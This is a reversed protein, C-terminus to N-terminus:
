KSYADLIRLWAAKEMAEDNEGLVKAYAEAALMEGIGPSELLSSIAEALKLPSRTPVLLGTNGNRVLDHMGPIDTVICPVEAAMAEIVAGPLGEAFSPLTFIDAVALWPIPDPQHGVFVVSDIGLELCRNRLDLEAPGGGVLIFACARQKSVIVAADLLDFLGKQPDLRCVTVIVQGKPPLGLEVKLADRRKRLEAVRARITRVPRSGPIAAVNARRVGFINQYNEVQAKANVIVCRARRSIFRKLPISLRSKEFCAGSEPVAREVVVFNAGSIALALQLWRNSDAHHAWVLFLSTRTSHILVFAKLLALPAFKVRAPYTRAIAEFARDTFEKALEISVCQGTVVRSGTIGVWDLLKVLDMEAGGWGPSDVCIVMRRGFTGANRNSISM